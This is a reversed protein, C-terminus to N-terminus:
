PWPGLVEKPSGTNGLDLTAGALYSAITGTWLTYWGAELITLTHGSLSICPHPKTAIWLNSAIRTYVGLSAGVITKLKGADLLVTRPAPM